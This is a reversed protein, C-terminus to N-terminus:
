NTRLGEIKLPAVSNVRNGRDTEALLVECADRVQEFSVSLICRPEDFAYCRDGKCPNCAFENQVVRHEM